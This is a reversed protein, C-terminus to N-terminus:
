GESATLHWSRGSSAPDPEFTWLDTTEVLLEPDGEVVRGDSARVASVIEATFRVTVAMGNATAYIGDICADKLCVLTLEFVEGKGLREAVAREFAALVDRALLPRLAAIDGTAYALLIIEYARAAGQLFHEEDFPPAARRTNERRLPDPKAVAAAKQPEGGGSRGSAADLVALLVWGLWVRILASLNGGMDAAENM